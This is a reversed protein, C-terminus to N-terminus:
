VEPNSATVTRRHCLRIMIRELDKALDPWTPPSEYGTRRDDRLRRELVKALSIADGPHYLWEPHESFIELLSGVGAAVVPINCAMFERTKQPFCYKGFDDDAYCVVGVDLANIFLPVKEFALVGFDRIRSSAPIELDKGRPGAVALHLNPIKENLKAFAQFLTHVDRIPSLLGSTGIITSDFPLGLAARCATKDIPLFLDHRVAFEIPYVHECRGFNKALYQAFPRSLCTIADSNEIAWFYLQKAVPLKAVAFNGFNDYIDFVVPIGLRKGLACGIVGYFSDSCAWIIDANHAATYARAVFRLLGPLKLEGANVSEWLVPGDRTQGEERKKYSLCLGSIKHGRLGLAFPIERFRGFRDTLLDKNM